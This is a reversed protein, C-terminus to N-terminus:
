PTQNGEATSRRHNQGPEVNHATFKGWRGAGLRVVM